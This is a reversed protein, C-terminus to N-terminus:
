LLCVCCICVLTASQIIILSKERHSASLRPSNIKRWLELRTCQLLFASSKWFSKSLSSPFLNHSTSLYPSGKIVSVTQKQTNLWSHRSFVFVWFLPSSNWKPSGVEPMKKGKIKVSDENFHNKERRSKTVEQLVTQFRLGFEVILLTRSNKRLFACHYVFETNRSCTRVISFPMLRFDKMVFIWLM